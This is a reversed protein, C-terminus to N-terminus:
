GQENSQGLPKADGYAPQTEATPMMSPHVTSGKRLLATTAVAQKGLSAAWCDANGGGRYPCTTLCTTASRGAIAHPGRSRHRARIAPPTAATMSTLVAHGIMCVDQQLVAVSQQSAWLCVCLQYASLMCCCLTISCADYRRQWCLIPASPALCMRWCGAMMRELLTM